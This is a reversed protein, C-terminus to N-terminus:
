YSYNNYKFITGQNQFHILIGVNDVLNGVNSITWIGILPMNLPYHFKNFPVNSKTTCSHGNSKFIPKSFKLKWITPIKTMICTQQKFYCKIHKHSMNNKLLGNVMHLSLTRFWCGRDIIFKIFSKRGLHSSHKLTLKGMINTSIKM